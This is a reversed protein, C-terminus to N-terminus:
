MGTTTRTGRREAGHIRLFQNPEKLPSMCIQPHQRLYHYLSTAGAKAVGIIIIFNPLTMIQLTSIEINSAFNKEYTTQMGYAGLALSAAIRRSGTARGANFQELDPALRLARWLRLGQPSSVFRSDATLEPVAAAYHDGIDLDWLRSIDGLVILDCDLYLVCNLDEPLLSPLLLRFYSASSIHDFSYIQRLVSTLREHDVPTWRLRIRDEPVSAQLRVKTASSLDDYLIHAVVSRGAGLHTTLSRLMTALPMAYADDCAAAIHIPSAGPLIKDKRDRCTTGQTCLLALLYREIAGSLSVNGWTRRLLRGSGGVRLRSLLESRALTPSACCYKGIKSCRDM